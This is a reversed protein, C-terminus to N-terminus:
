DALMIGNRGLGTDIKIHIRATRSLSQAADAIATLSVVSNVALDIDNEICAAFQDDATYLWALLPAKIGAARLTLAEQLLATALWEAGGAIAARGSEVLGHGYGGAKVIAMLAPSGVRSKLVSVNRALAGLDIVARVHPTTM